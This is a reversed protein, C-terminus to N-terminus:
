DDCLLPHLLHSFFSLCFEQSHAQRRPDEGLRVDLVGAHGGGDLFLMSVVAVVGVALRMAEVLETESM